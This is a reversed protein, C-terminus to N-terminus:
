SAVDTLGVTINLDSVRDHKKLMATIWYNIEPQKM